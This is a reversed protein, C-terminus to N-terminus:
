NLLSTVSVTLYKVNQKNKTSHCNCQKQWAIAVAKSGYIWRSVGPVGNRIAVTLYNPVTAPLRASHHKSVTVTKGNPLVAKAVIQYM